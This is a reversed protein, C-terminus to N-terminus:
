SRLGLIESLGTAEIVRRVIPTPHRTEVVEVRKSIQLMLAIGSSDMFSLRELDIVVRTPNDLLLRDIVVKLGDATAIDLEGVFSLVFAGSPDSTREVSAAPDGLGELEDM